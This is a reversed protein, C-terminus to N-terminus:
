SRSPALPAASEALCQDMFFGLLVAMKKTDKQIKHDDNGKKRIKAASDYILHLINFLIKNNASTPMIATITV